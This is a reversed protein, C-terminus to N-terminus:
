ENINVGLKSIKNQSKAATDKTSVKTATAKTKKIVPAQTDTKKAPETALPPTKDTM